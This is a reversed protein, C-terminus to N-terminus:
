SRLRTLSSRAPPPALVIAAIAAQADSITHLEPLRFSIPMGKRPPYLREACIRRCTDNGALAGEIINALIEPGREGLIGELLLTKHHRSGSPMGKPNGSQGPKWRHPELNPRARPNSKDVDGSPEIPPMDNM